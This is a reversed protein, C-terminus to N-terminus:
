IQNPLIESDQDTNVLFASFAGATLPGTAVTANIRTYRKRGKPLTMVIKHGAVLTAKGIAGTSALISSTGFGEADDGELRFDVTAAGSATASTDVQIVLKLNDDAEYGGPGHDIVDGMQGGSTVAVGDAYENHKDILM